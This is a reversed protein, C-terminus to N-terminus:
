EEFSSAPHYNLGASAAQRAWQFQEARIRERDRANIELQQELARKLQKNDAELEDIRLQMKRITEDRGYRRRSAVWDRFFGLV